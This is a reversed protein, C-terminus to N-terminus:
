YILFITIWISFSQQPPLLLELGGEYFNHEIKTKAVKFRISVGDKRKSFWFFKSISKWIDKLQKDNPSNVRYIHYCLSNM